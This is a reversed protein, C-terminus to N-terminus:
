KVGGIKSLIDKAKINLFEMHNVSTFAGKSNAEMETLVEECKSLLAKLLENHKIVDRISGKYSPEVGISMKLRENDKKLKKNEQYDNKVDRCGHYVAEDYKEKEFELEKTLEAIRAEKQRCDLCPTFVPRHKESEELLITLNRIREERRQCGQCTSGKHSEYLDPRAEKRVSDNM